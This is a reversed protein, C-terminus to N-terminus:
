VLGAINDLCVEVEAAGQKEIAKGLAGVIMQGEFACSMEVASGTETAAVTFGIEVKVGAMGEGSIVIRSPAQLEDVNWEITNPMGMMSIVETLKTGQEIVAPVESKWKQHLSNWKEYTNPDSVIAWVADQGAAYERTASIQGM